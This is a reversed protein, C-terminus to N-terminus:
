GGGAIRELVDIMTAASQLVHGRLKLSAAQFRQNLLLKCVKYAPLERANPRATVIDSLRRVLADRQAELGLQTTKSPTSRRTQPKMSKKTDPPVLNPRAFTGRTSGSLNAHVRKLPDM